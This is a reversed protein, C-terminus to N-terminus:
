HDVTQGSAVPEPDEVPFLAASAALESAPEPDVAKAKEGRMAIVRAKIEVLAEM